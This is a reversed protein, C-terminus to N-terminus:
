RYNYLQKILPRQRAGASCAVIGYIFIFGINPRLFIFSEPSVLM